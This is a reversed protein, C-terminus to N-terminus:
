SPHWRHDVTVITLETWSRPRGVVRRGASALAVGRRLRKQVPKILDCGTLMTLSGVSLTLAVQDALLAPQFPGAIPPTSELMQAHNDHAAYCCPRYCTPLARIM